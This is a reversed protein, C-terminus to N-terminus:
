MKKKLFFFFLFFFLGFLTAVWGMPPSRGGWKALPHNLWGYAPWRPAASGGGTAWPTTRGGGSRDAQPHGFWGLGFSTALWGLM